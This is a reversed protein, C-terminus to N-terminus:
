IDTSFIHLSQQIEAIETNTAGSQKALILARRTNEVSETHRGLANLATGNALHLPWTQPLDLFEGFFESLENITAIQHDTDDNLIIRIRAAHARDLALEAQAFSYSLNRIERTSEYLRAAELLNGQLYTIWALLRRIKLLTHPDEETLKNYEILTAEALIRAQKIDGLELLIQAMNKQYVSRSLHTGSGLVTNAMELVRTQIEFAKKWRGARALTFAYNNLVNLWDTSPPMGHKISAEDTQEYLELSRPYDLSNEYTEGLYGLAIIYTEYAKASEGKHDNAIRLSITQSRIAENAQDMWMHSHSISNLLEVRVEWPISDDKALETEAAFLIESLTADPSLQYSAEFSPSPSVLLDSLFKTVKEARVLQEQARATQWLSVSLTTTTAIMIVLTAATLAANRKLFKSARYVPTDKRANIPRNSLYNRLDDTLEIISGYRRSLEPQLATAIIIRIDTKLTHPFKIATDTVQDQAQRWSLNTLDHPLKNTMLNFLVVGISYVDTATTLQEGRIQEPSAYAPTFALQSAITQETDELQKAIGFDILKPLGDRTVLINSAKIDRHIILNRHAAEIATCVNLVLRIIKAPSYGHQRVYENIPIGDIFEMIQFSRGDETTGWDLIQAIYPHDLSALIAREGLFRRRVEATDFASGNVKIAVHQTLGEVRRRGLYVRGMGGEGIIGAITYDGIQKPLVLDPSMSLGGATQIATEAQQHHRVMGILRNRSDSDHPYLNEVYRKLEETSKLLAAEFADVLNIGSNSRPAESFDSM